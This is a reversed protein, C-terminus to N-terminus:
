PEVPLPPGIRCRSNQVVQQTDDDYHIVFRGELNCTTMEIGRGPDGKISDGKEGRCGGNACVENVVQRVFDMVAGMPPMPGQPGTAGDAGDAGDTGDQGPEGPVPVFQVGPVFPISSGGRDEIQEIAADLAARDRRRTERLESITDVLEANQKSLEARTVQRADSERLENIATLFWALLLAALVAAIIKM